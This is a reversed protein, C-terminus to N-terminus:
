VTEEGAEEYRLGFQAFAWPLTEPTCEYTYTMSGFYERYTTGFLTRRGEPTGIAMMRRVSGAPDNGEITLEKIRTGIEPTIGWYELRFSAADSPGVLFLKGEREEIRFTEDGFTQEPGPIFRIPEKTSFNPMYAAETLWENGDIDTVILTKHVHSRIRESLSVTGVPVVKYGLEELCWGLLGNVDHCIGGKKEVVIRQFVRDTDCPILKKNLFQTNEYPIHIINHYLLKKLLAADPVITEPMALGIREFYLKVREIDM